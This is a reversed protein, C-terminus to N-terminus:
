VSLAQASAVLGHRRTKQVWLDLDRGRCGARRLEPVGMNASETMVSETETAEALLAELRM